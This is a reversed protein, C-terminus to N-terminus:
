TLNKRMIVGAPQWDNEELRKIMGPRSTAGEVVACGNSAAILEIARLNAELTNEPSIAILTDVILRDGEIKYWFVATPKGSINVQATKFVSGTLAALRNPNQECRALIEELHQNAKHEVNKEAPMLCVMDDLSLFRM